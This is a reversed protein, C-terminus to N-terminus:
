SYLVVTPQGQPNGHLSCRIDTVPMETHDSNDDLESILVQADDGVIGHLQQLYTIFVSLTVHAVEQTYYKIKGRM